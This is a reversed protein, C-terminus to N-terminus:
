WLLPHPHGEAACVPREGADGGSREGVAARVADAQGGDQEGDSDEGRSDVGASVDDALARVVVADGSDM